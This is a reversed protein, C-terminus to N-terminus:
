LFSREGTKSGFRSTLNGAAKMLQDKDGLRPGAILDKDRDFPRWPHVGKWSDDADGGAGAAKGAAAAQKEEAKRKKM